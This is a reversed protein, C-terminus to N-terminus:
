ASQRLVAPAQERVKELLREWATASGPVRGGARELEEILEDASLYRRAPDDAVLRALVAQLEAPLPKSKGKGSPPLAAWASAIRGLALLDAAPSEDQGGDSGALWGPEGLGCLKLAGAQTLVFSGAELHGHSLGAAHAAQLAV